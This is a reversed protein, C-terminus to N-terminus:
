SSFYFNNQSSDSIQTFNSSQTNETVELAAKRNVKKNVEDKFKKLLHPHKIIINPHVLSFDGINRPQVFDKIFNKTLSYSSKNDM